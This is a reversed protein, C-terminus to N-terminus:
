GSRLRDSSEAILNILDSVLFKHPLVLQNLVILPYHLLGFVIKNRM